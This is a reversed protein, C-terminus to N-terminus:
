GDILQPFAQFQEAAAAMIDDDKLNQIGRFQRQTKVARSQKLIQFGSLLDVAVGLRNTAPIEFSDTVVVSLHSCGAVCDSSGQVCYLCILRQFQSEGREELSSSLSSSLLTPGPALRLGVM